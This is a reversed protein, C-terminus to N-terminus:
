AAVRIDRCLVQLLAVSESSSPDELAQLVRQVQPDFAGSPLLGSRNLRELSWSWSDMKTSRAGPDTALLSALVKAAEPPAEPLLEQAEKIRDPSSLGLAMKGLVQAREMATFFPQRWMEYFVVGM